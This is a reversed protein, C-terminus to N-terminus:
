VTKVNSGQFFSTVELFDETLKRRSLEGVKLVHSKQMDERERSPKQRSRSSLSSMEHVPRGTRVHCVSLSQTPLLSEDLSHYAQKRGAPEQREQIFLPSSLAKGITEDSLPADHLYLPMTGSSQEQLFIETTESYDFNDIVNHEYGTSSTNKALPGSEEVPPAACHKYIPLTVQSTTRSSPISSSSSLTLLTSHSCSFYAPAFMSSMTICGQFRSGMCVLNHITRASLCSRASTYVTRHVVSCFCVVLQLSLCTRRLHFSLCDRRVQRLFLSSYLSMREAHERVHQSSGCNLNWCPGNVSRKLGTTVLTGATTSEM